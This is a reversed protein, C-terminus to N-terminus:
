LITLCTDASRGHAVLHKEIFLHITILHITILSRHQIDYVHGYYQLLDPKGETASADERIKLVQEVVIVRTLRCPVNFKGQSDEWEDGATLM